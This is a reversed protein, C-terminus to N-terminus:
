AQCYSELLEVYKNSFTTLIETTREWFKEDNITQIDNVDDSIEDEDLIKSTILHHCIAAYILLCQKKVQENVVLLDTNSNNRQHTNLMDEKM